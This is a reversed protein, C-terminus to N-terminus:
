LLVAGLTFAGLTLLAIRMGLCCPCDTGTTLREYFAALGNGILVLARFRDVDCPNIQHRLLPKM